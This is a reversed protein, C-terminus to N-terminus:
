KLNVDGDENSILDYALSTLTLNKGDSAVEIANTDITVNGTVEDHTITLTYDEFYYETFLLNTSNRILNRGGVQINAIKENITEELSKGNSTFVINDASVILRYAGDTDKYFKLYSQDNGLAVQGDSGLYLGNTTNDVSAKVGSYISNDSIHFGGITANFAVLDDVRIKEATVSRAVLVSGHIKDEPVPEVGELDTFDTGLEYYKGDTGKVILRDVQLTGAEILDGKVRVGVLEKTIYGESATLDKIIGSNAFLKEIAAEGINAFDITVYEADLNRIKADVANLRDAIVYTFEANYSTLNTFAGEIAELSDTEIDTFNGFTVKLNEIEANLAKVDTITVYELNAYKASLTEIQAILIEANQIKAAEASLVEINAIIANLRDTTIRDAIVIEFESIKSGAEKVDETRAAPSSLNGTITATHNKIQVTVREGAKTDATTSVPTYRDSGDIQVWISGDLEVTTGYVTTETKTKPEDKTAKVFEYILDNTLAM